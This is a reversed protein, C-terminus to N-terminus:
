FKGSDSSFGDSGVTTGGESSEKPIKTRVQTMYLFNDAQRTLEFGGEPIYVDAARQSVATKMQSLFAFCMIAAIVLPIFITAGLRIWFSSKASENLRVEDTNLDFPKGNNAMELFEDAKELFLSFGEKYQNKGFLPLVYRDMMVEKGHDTFATNGSGKAILAYDRDEMSLLLMLGSQDDGYGYHYKTYIEKALETIDKDGKDAITVISVECQYKALLDEAVKNLETREEITLLNANDEVLGLDAGHTPLFLALSFFVMSFLFGVLKKM